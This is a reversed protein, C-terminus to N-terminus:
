IVVLEARLAGSEKLAELIAMLDGPAAGVENVAQVIDQLSVGPAFHFMHNADADIEVNSQATVVTDGSGFANPQSVEDAESITVTLSGHTVAAAAVEVRDGIVITGTRSNIVVRAAADDVQVELNELVSLFSVRQAPDLPARVRISTGDMARAVDPGFTENIRESVRRLRINLYVRIRISSRLRSGM